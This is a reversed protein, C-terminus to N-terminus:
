QKIALSGNSPQGAEHVVHEMNDWNGQVCWDYVHMLDYSSSGCQAAWCSGVCRPHHRQSEASDQRELQKVFLMNDPVLAVQHCVSTQASYHKM